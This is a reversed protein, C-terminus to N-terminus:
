PMPRSLCTLTFETDLPQIGGSATESLSRSWERPSLSWGTRFLQACSASRESSPFGSATGRDWSRHHKRYTLWYQRFAWLCLSSIGCKGPHRRCLTCGVSGNLSSMHPLQGTLHNQTPHLLRHRRHYPLCTGWTCYGTRSFTLNGACSRRQICTRTTSPRRCARGSWRVSHSTQLCLRRALQSCWTWTSSSSHMTWVRGPSRWKSAM